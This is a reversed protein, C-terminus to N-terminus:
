NRKSNVVLKNKKKEKMISLKQWGIDYGIDYGLKYYPHQNIFEQPQVRKKRFGM